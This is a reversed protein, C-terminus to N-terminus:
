VLTIPSHRWHGCHQAHHARGGRSFRFHAHRQGLAKVALHDAHVGHLDVPAHRHPGGCRRGLFHLADGVVHYGHGVRRLTPRRCPIHLRRIQAHLIDQPPALQRHQHAARPQIQVSQDPARVKGGPRLARLYPLFQLAAGPVLANFRQQLLQATDVGNRRLLEVQPIFLADDTRQLHPLLGAPGDGLM